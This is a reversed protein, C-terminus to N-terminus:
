YLREPVMITIMTGDNSVHYISGRLRQALVSGWFAHCRAHGNDLSYPKSSLICSITYDQRPVITIEEVELPASLQRHLSPDTASIFTMLGDLVM